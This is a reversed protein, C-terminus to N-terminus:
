DYRLARMPDVLSARRAPVWGAGFAIAALLAIAIGFTLPDQGEMGYLLSRAAAGIGVAAIVGLTGGILLMGGVQRLVLRRVGAADAGLAMRVGIERTRQAVSYALVGYLGIGALLTAICAFAATLLSIVRDLFINDLIRQPMTNLDEVPVKPALGALMTRITGLLAGGDLSTRVYYHLSYLRSEQHSPLYFVAPISDKVSSYKVNPVVGVIQMDLAGSDRNVMFKGVADRGLRFKEAFAQNIIAVKAGGMADGDTFERGADLRVGMTAFYAPGVVNYRSQNDVDPGHPFGQVRVSNGWSEGELLPVQAETVATVGPIAALKEAVQRFFATARLTDYGAREPSISFTVMDNVRVGLDVRTVNRLSRLFLGSSILLAMSLAIQVTVLAHRFRSAARGATIQSAGARITSILDARTSHLAPFLGFLVGTALALASSFLIVRPELKLIISETATAPLMTGIAGLTWQAVLLSAVGGAFALLLSETLLQTVLQARSAGLALRVGMETARAAGRALLLNAINACAILLVIGTVGLLLLLPAKAERHISSQGRSGEVVNIPKKRFTVLTQASMGNQLPAEVDNIIPRYAAEIGAAAQALTVGPKRRGFAYLWYVSRDEYMRNTTSGSLVRRMTIPVYLMIRSGTTTGTFSEPAIGIIELSQGNMTITRGIAGPDAGFRTVWLDHSLVAVFHAGQRDDEAPGILRGHQPLLELTSFYGGSVYAADATFPQDRLSVSATTIRFGALGSLGTEARELDRFIPYSMVEDCGGSQNCSDSGPKPGPTALSVLEDPARVPLKRALLQDFLSYIAANAGLGLALSLVAITTVFPTKRLTRLALTLHRM